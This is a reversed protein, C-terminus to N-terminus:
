QDLVLDIIPANELQQRGSAMAEATDFAVRYLGSAGPGDVFRASAAQLLLRLQQETVGDKFKVAVVHKAIYRQALGLGQDNQAPSLTLYAAQGITALAFFMAAAKWMVVRGARPAAARPASAAAQERKIDAELRRWDLEGPPNLGGTSADLAPNLGQMLAIEAALTRDQAQADSIRQSLDPSATQHVFALLDEESFGHTHDNM